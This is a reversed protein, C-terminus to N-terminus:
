MYGPNAAFCRICPLLSTSGAAPLGTTKMLCRNPHSPNLRCTGNETLVVASESVRWLRRGAVTAGVEEGASPESGAPVLALLEPSRDSVTGEGALACEADGSRFVWPLEGLAGGRRVTM